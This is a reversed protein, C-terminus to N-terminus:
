FIQTQTEFKVSKSQSLDIKQSKSGDSNFEAPRQSHREQCIIGLIQEGRAKEKEEEEAKKRAAEAAEAAKAAEVEKQRLRREEEEM